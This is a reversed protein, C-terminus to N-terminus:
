SNRANYRTFYFHLLLDLMYTFPFSLYIVVFKLMLFSCISRSVLLVIITIFWYLRRGVDVVVVVALFYYLSTLQSEEVFCCFWGFYINSVNCYIIYTNTKTQIHLFSRKLSSWKFIRKIKWKNEESIGGHTYGITKPITYSIYECSYM